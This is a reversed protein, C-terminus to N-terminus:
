SYIWSFISVSPTQRRQLHSGFRSMFDSIYCVRFGGLKIYPLTVRSQCLKRAMHCSPSPDIVIDTLSGAQHREVLLRQCVPLSAPFPTVLKASYLTIEDSTTTRMLGYSPYVILTRGDDAGNLPLSSYHQWRIGEESLGDYDPSGFDRIM